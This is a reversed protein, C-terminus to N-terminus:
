FSRSVCKLCDSKLFGSIKCKCRGGVNCIVSKEKVTSVCNMITTLSECSPPCTPDWQPLDLPEVHEEANKTGDTFVYSIYDENKDWTLREPEAAKGRGLHQTSHSTSTALLLVLIVKFPFFQSFM